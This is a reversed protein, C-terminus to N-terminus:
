SEDRRTMGSWTVNTIGEDSAIKALAVMKEEEVLDHDKLPYELGFLAYKDICMKNFALLDYREVTHMNQKIFKSIARINERTDTHGPIIPSRIWVPMGIESLIKANELIRELSVGAFELHKESDMLKLDFLVLDVHELISRWISESAYGTTDLAVHVGNAQLKKALEITFEHQLLPEGGSITVGGNSTDFFIKDRLLEDVLQDVDWKKGNIEIAGTPCADECKGCVLCKALDMVMGDPTLDLAGEPCAEVCAKDGICKLSHWVTRMDSDITEINHCWVCHLPCGKVFATTRIGPGDETSARQINTLIGLRTM